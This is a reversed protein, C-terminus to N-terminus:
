ENRHLMVTTNVLTLAILFCCHFYSTMTTPPPQASLVNLPRLLFDPPPSIAPPLSCPAISKNMFLDEARGRCRGKNYDGAESMSILPGAQRMQILSQWHPM